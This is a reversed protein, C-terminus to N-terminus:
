KHNEKGQLAKTLRSVELKLLGLEQSLQKIKTASRSASVTMSFLISFSCFSVFLFLANVPLEIGMVKALFGILDPFISISLIVVMLILWLMTYKLELQYKKILNLLFLTCIVAGVILLLQLKLSIM